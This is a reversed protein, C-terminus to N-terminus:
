HPVRRDGAIGLYRLRSGFCRGRLHAGTVSSPRYGKKGCGIRHRSVGAPLCAAGPYALFRARPVYRSAHFNGRSLERRLGNRLKRHSRGISGLDGFRGLCCQFQFAPLGGVGYQRGLDRQRGMRRVLGVRRYCEVHSSSGWVVSNAAVLRASRTAFDYVAAPSPAPRDVVSGDALAAAIDLYGAGVTFIDYVSRYTIGTQADTVFSMGPFNKWATKMLRAKVQDPTLRPDQELLLAVGGSVVATAMSTGSLRIYKGSAINQPFTRSLYTNGNGFTSVVRNGPAVLDPKVFHDIATPGKSSYSAIRDDSRDATDMAKMAGVTIVSPDNGPSHITGYGQAGSPDDRGSNGAAVVVVIGAKWAAEVARCLPDLRYSEFVPRGLSLNIIRINYRDKLQIAREIAALVAGERGAGQDDLVRLDVLNTGPALGQFTGRSARGDGGVIGAVHTGHGYGDVQNVLGGFAESYVVRSMAIDKSTSIGSDIVAVGVGKGTFGLRWPLDANVAKTALDVHGSLPRNPSIYAVEPMAAIAALSSAPVTYRAAKMGTYQATLKGQKAKIATDMTEPAAGNFQIIVDAEAAVKSSLDPAIKSNSAAGLPLVGILLLSWNRINM